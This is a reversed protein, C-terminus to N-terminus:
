FLIIGAEFIFRKHYTEDKNYFRTYEYGLSTFFTIYQKYIYDLNLHTQISYYNKSNTQTEDEFSMIHYYGLDGSLDLKNHIKKWYGIRYFLTGSFDKNLGEYHTGFGIINYTNQNKFRAAINIKSSTGFYSMMQINTSPTLNVLGFKRKSNDETYNILGVQIGKKHSTAYNFFGIQLGDLSDAYNYMSFQVGNSKTTCLNFFLSAQCGHNIGKSINTVASIQAGSFNTACLNNMASFQLGKLKHAANTVTALQLGTMKSGTVNAVVATQIGKIDKVDLSMFLAGDWGKANQRVVSSFLNFQIGKLANIDGSIGININAKRISDKNGLAINHYDKFANQCYIGLTSFLCLIALVLRKM